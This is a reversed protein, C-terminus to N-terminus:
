EEDALLDKALQVFTERNWPQRLPIGSDTRIVWEESRPKRLLHVRFLSPWAMLQVRGAAAAPGRGKVELLLRGEPTELAIDPVTYSGIDEENLTRKELHAQWGEERAWQTIQAELETVARVWEDRLRVREQPEQQLAQM